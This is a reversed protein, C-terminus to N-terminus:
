TRVSLLGRVYVSRITMGWTLYAVQIEDSLESGGDAIIRATVVCYGIGQGSGFGISQECSFRRYDVKSGQHM